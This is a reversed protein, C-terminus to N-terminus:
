PLQPNRRERQRCPPPGLHEGEGPYIRANGLDGHLLWGGARTHQLRARIVGSALLEQHAARTVGTIPDYMRAYSHGNDLPMSANGVVDFAFVLEGTTLQAPRGVGDVTFNAPEVEELGEAVVIEQSGALVRAPMLRGIVDTDSSGSYQLWNVMIGTAGLKGLKSQDQKNASPTNLTEETMGSLGPGFERGMISWQGAIKQTWTVYFGAGPVALMNPNADAEFLDGNAVNVPVEPGAPIASSSFQRAYVGSEPFGPAADFYEWVAVFSGDDLGAVTTAGMSAAPLSNVSFENGVPDGDHSYRHGVINNTGTAGVYDNWLVVFSGDALAGVTPEPVETAANATVDKIPIEMTLPTADEGWLRCRIHWGAPGTKRSWCVVFKGGGLQVAEVSRINGTKDNMRFEEERAPYAREFVARTAPVVRPPFLAAQDVVSQPINYECYPPVSAPDCPLGEWRVFRWHLYPKAEYRVIYDEGYVLNESCNPAGDWFDQLLCYRELDNLEVIRGGGQIELPHSCGALYLPLLLLVFGIHRRTLM